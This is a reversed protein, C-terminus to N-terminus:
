HRAKNTAAKSRIFLSILYCSLKELATGVIYVLLATFGIYIRLQNWDRFDFERMDFLSGLILSPAVLISTMLGDFCSIICGGNNGRFNQQESRAVNNVLFIYFSTLGLGSYSFLCRSKPKKNNHNFPFKKQNLSNM